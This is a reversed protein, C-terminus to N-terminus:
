LSYLLDCRYDCLIYLQYYLDQTKSTWIVLTRNTQKGRNYATPIGCDLFLVWIKSSM